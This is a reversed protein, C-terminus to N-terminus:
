FDFNAYDPRFFRSSQKSFVLGVTRGCYDYNIKQVDSTRFNVDINPVDSTRSISRWYLFLIILILLPTARYAIYTHFGLGYFIGSFIFSLVYFKPSKQEKIQRLALLLFYIGWVLFFPAMIARFGIRSFNIYWFSTALLFSSLLAIKESFLEKALFYLGLVTLIGFIAAVSRPVWPEHGFKMVFFGVINPWLGERGYNEPYFVKFDGTEWAEVGNNAYIAEDPYLGPPLQAINYLRLFAAIILIILLLFLVHTKNM